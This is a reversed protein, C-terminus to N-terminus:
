SRTFEGMNDGKDLSNPPAVIWPMTTMKYIKL